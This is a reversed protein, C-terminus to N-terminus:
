AEHHLPIKGKIAYAFVLFLILLVASNICLIFQVVFLNGHFAFIFLLQLVASLVLYKIFRFDNGSIFYLMILYVLAFNSMSFSFLRGLKILGPASRGCIVKLVFSPFFNFFLAATACLVAALIMSKTLITISEEDKINLGSAKPLLVTGIAVPLFLFIKGLLQALSYTGSDAPSFFYRVLVMDSCALLSFMFYSTAVQPLCRLMNSYSDNGNFAQSSGAKREDRSVGVSIIRRIPIFLIAIILLNSLLMAALSGSIGLGLSILVFALIVKLIGGLIYAGSQWFFLNLAQTAALYLIFLCYSSFLAALVYGAYVESIKFTLLLPTSVLCFVIFLGAAIWLSKYVLDRLVLRVKLTDGCADSEACYKAIVIQLTLLPATLILFLSLLTNFGSFDVASLKHACILQYVLSLVNFVTVGFFLVLVDKSFSDIKKISFPM